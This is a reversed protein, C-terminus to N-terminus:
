SKGRSGIKRDKGRTACIRRYGCASVTSIAIGRAATFKDSTYFCNASRRNFSTGFSFDPEVQYTAVTVNRILEQPMPAPANRVRAASLCLYCIALIYDNRPANQKELLCTRVSSPQWCDAHRKTFLSFPSDQPFGMAGMKSPSTDKTGASQLEM